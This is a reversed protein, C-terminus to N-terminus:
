NSKLKLTDIRDETANALAELIEPKNVLDSIEIGKEDMIKAAIAIILKTKKDEMMM